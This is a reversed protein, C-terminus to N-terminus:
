CRVFFCHTSLGDNFIAIQNNQTLIQVNIKTMRTLKTNRQKNDAANVLIEDFIQYLAPVFDCERAAVRAHAHEAPEQSQGQSKSEKLM